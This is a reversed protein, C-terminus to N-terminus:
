LSWRIMCQFIFISKRNKIIGSWNEKKKNVMVVYEICRPSELMWRYCYALMMKLLKGAGDDAVLWCRDEAAVFCKIWM